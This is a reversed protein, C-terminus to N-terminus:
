RADEQNMYESVPAALGLLVRALLDCRAHEKNEM